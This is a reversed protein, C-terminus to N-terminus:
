PKVEPREWVLLTGKVPLQNQITIPPAVVIRWDMLDGAGDPSLDDGEVSVSLWIDAVALDSNVGGAGKGAADPSCTYSQVGVGAM